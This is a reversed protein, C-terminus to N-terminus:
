ETPRLLDSSQVRGRGYGGIRCLPLEITALSCTEFCFMDICIRFIMCYLVKIYTLTHIYDFAKTWRHHAFTLSWLAMLPDSAQLQTTHKLSRIYVLQAAAYAARQQLTDSWCSYFSLTSTQIIFPLLVGTSAWRTLKGIMWFLLQWMYAFLALLLLVFPTSRIAIFTQSTTKSQFLSFETLVSASSSIQLTILACVVM